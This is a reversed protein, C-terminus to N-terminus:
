ANRGIGEPHAGAMSIVFRAFKLVGGANLPSDQRM